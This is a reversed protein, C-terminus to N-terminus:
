VLKLHMLSLLQIDHISKGISVFVVTSSMKTLFKTDNGGSIPNQCISGVPTLKAGRTSFITVTMLFYSDLESIIEFGFGVVKGLMM